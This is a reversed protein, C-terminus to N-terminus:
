FNYQLTLATKYASKSGYTDYAASTARWTNKDISAGIYGLELGLALEDYIQYKSNLDVEFLSDKTTLFNGYSANRVTGGTEKLYDVDNTGKFYIFHVTHSLKDILKIDKLSLGLAWFGLNTNSSSAVSGTNIGGLFDGGQLWFSGIAWNQPAGVVPMRGSSDKQTSNGGEGSSYAFFLEPTMMKLGTYDIAIDGMWGSRGGSAQNTNSQNNWSAKGYNIDAMIKFPDFATVTLAAGGWYARMGESISANPGTFGGLATAGTGTAATQRGAYAYAFFPKVNVGGFTADAILLGADTSTGGSRNGATTAGPQQSDFLRGYGGILSLNSTVPVVVAAAAFHDDLIPSGGGFAMPLSLSQYGVLFNVKTGPWKFDIYGKRLMLNGVNGANAGAGAGYNTAGPTRGAGIAMAGNGWNTTGFQTELVGKLNENAIFSFATRMRQLVDFTKDEGGAVNNAKMFDWNQAWQADMQWSGSAKIEAAAASGAGIVLTALLALLLAFKKNM